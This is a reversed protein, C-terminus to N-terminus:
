FSRRVLPTFGEEDQATFNVETKILPNPNTDVWRILVKALSSFSFM